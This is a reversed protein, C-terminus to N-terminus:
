YAFYQLPSQTTTIGNTLFFSSLTVLKVRFCFIKNKLFYITFLTNNIMQQHCQFITNAAFFM